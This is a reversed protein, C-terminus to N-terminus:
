VWSSIKRKLKRFFTAKQPKVDTRYVRDHDKKEIRYGEESLNYNSMIRDVDESSLISSEQTRQVSELDIDSESIGSSKLFGKIPSFYNPDNKLRSFWESLLYRTYLNFKSYYVSAKRELDQPSQFFDHLGFVEVGKYRHYGREIMKKVTAGEPRIVEPDEPILPIAEELLATKFLHPGGNREFCFLYDLVRGQIMFFHDPLSEALKVIEAVGDTKLLIDADVALTWKKRKEIGIEFTRKVAKSFPVELIVTYNDIGVEKEVIDKCNQLTDEGITRIVVHVNNAMVKM